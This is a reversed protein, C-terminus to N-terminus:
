SSRSHYKVFNEPLALQGIPRARYDLEILASGEAYKLLGTEIRVPRLDTSSRGDHRM